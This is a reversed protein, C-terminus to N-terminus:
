HAEGPSVDWWIDHQEALQQLEKARYCGEPDTRVSRPKAYHKVWQEIFTNWATKADTNGTNGTAEETRHAVPVVKGNGEDVMVTGRTRTNDLPHIWDVGDIQLNDLPESVRGAAVPLPERRKWQACVDCKIESALKQAWKPSGRKRLITALARSGIHNM